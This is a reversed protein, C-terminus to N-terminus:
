NNFGSFFSLSFNGNLILDSLINIDAKVSTIFIINAQPHEILDINNNENSAINQIRHM